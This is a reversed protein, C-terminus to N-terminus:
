TYIYICWILPINQNMHCQLSFIIHTKKRGALIVPRVLTQEFIPCVPFQGKKIRFQINLQPNQHGKHNKKTKSFVHVCISFGMSPSWISKSSLRRSVTRRSDLHFPTKSFPSGKLLFLLLKLAPENGSRTQNVSSCHRDLLYDWACSGVM